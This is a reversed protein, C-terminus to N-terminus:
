SEYADLHSEITSIRDLLRKQEQEWINEYHIQAKEGVNFNEMTLRGRTVQESTQEHLEEMLMEQVM